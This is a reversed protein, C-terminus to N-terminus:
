SCIQTNVFTVPETQKPQTCVLDMRSCTEESKEHSNAALRCKTSREGVNVPYEVIVILLGAPAICSSCSLSM